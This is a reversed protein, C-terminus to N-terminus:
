KSAFDENIVAQLLDKIEGLKEPKFKSIEGLFGAIALDGFDHILSHVMNQSTKRLFADKNQAISYLYRNRESTRTLLGKDVLHGMVTMVTTYAIPRKHNILQVIHQVTANEVEWMYGMVEAELKGLIKKPILRSIAKEENPNIYKKNEAM